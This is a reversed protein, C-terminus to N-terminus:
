WAFYRMAIRDERDGRTAEPRRSSRENTWAISVAVRLANAVELSAFRIVSSSLSLPTPIGM